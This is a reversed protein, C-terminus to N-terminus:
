VCEGRRTSERLWLPTTGPNRWEYQMKKDRYPIDLGRERDGDAEVVRPGKDKEITSGLTIYGHM